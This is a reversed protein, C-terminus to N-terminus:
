DNLLAELEAKGNADQRLQELDGKSRILAAIRARTEESHIAACLRLHVLSPPSTRDIAMTMARDAVDEPLNVMMWPIWEDPQSRAWDMLAMIEGEEWVKDHPRSAVWWSMAATRDSESWGSVIGEIWSVRRPDSAPLDEYLRLAANKDVRSLFRIGGWDTADISQGSLTRSFNTPDYGQRAAWTVVTALLKTNRSSSLRLAVSFLCNGDYFAAEEMLLRAGLSPDKETIAEIIATAVDVVLFGARYLRLEDVSRSFWDVAEEPSDSAWQKLEAKLDPQCEAEVSLWLDAASKGDLEFMRGFLALLRQEQHRTEPERSVQLIKERIEALSMSALWARAEPRGMDRQVSDSEGTMHPVATSFRATNQTEAPATLRSVWWGLFLCALGGAWPIIPKM